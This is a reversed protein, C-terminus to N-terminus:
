PRALAGAIRDLFLPRVESRGIGTPLVFHLRDQEVKKDRAVFPMLEAAAPLPAEDFGYVALLRHAREADAPAIAREASALRLAFHLGRGVCIGHPTRYHSHAELAHGLTHGLNLLRRPGSERLDAEVIRVKASVSREIVTAMAAPARALVDPRGSELLAFLEADLGIAVKLVEGLGSHFEAAPLSGLFDPDIVVLAPPHVTGALNKGASLNVANKGGVSSDVMALLTTPVLWLEIGRLWLSACLGGLDTLSGGGLVLLRGTRDIGAAALARLVEEARALTKAAEGGEVLLRPWSDPITAPGAAFAVRDALVFTSRGTAWGALGGALGSGIRVESAAEGPPECRLSIV